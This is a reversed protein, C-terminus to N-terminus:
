LKNFVLATVTLDQSTQTWQCSKNFIQAYSISKDANYLKLIWGSNSGMIQIMPKLRLKIMFADKLTKRKLAIIDKPYVEVIQNYFSDYIMSKIFSLICMLAHVLSLLNEDCGKRRINKLIRRDEKSFPVVPDSGKEQDYLKLLEPFKPNTHFEKSIKQVLNIRQCEVTLRNSLRILEPTISIETPLEYKVVSSLVTLSLQDTFKALPVNSEAFEEIIDNDLTKKVLVGITPNDINQKLIGIANKAAWFHMKIYDKHILDFFLSTEMSHTLNNEQLFSLASKGKDTKRLELGIKECKDLISM